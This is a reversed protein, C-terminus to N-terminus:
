MRTALIILVDALICLAFAQGVAKIVVQPIETSSMKVSLGQYTAVTSIIIGFVFSKIISSIIDILQITQLLNQIYEEFPIPTFFQTIFFSGLLGIFSFYINLILLSLTVGLFRPVILYSIPNIGVSVYAEIQHSVVMSGLDTAIATASRAIIIFATLVPGLETTIVAILIKYFLVGQGFKSFISVGIIIISAGISISILSIVWLAEFGTFLIQMVLVKKGIRKRRLFFISEFVVHFFYGLAYMFDKLKLNFWRGIAKIM